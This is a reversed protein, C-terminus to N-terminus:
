RVAGDNSSLLIRLDDLQDDPACPDGNHDKQIDVLESFRLLATSPLM